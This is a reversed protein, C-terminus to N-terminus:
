NKTEWKMGQKLKFINNFLGTNDLKEDYFLEVIEIYKAIDISFYDKLFMGYYFLPETVCLIKDYENITFYKISFDIFKEFNLENYSFNNKIFNFKDKNAEFRLFYIYDNEEVIAFALISKFYFKEKEINYLETNNDLTYESLWQGMWAIDACFLLLYLDGREINIKYKEIKNKIESFYKIYEKELKNKIMFNILNEVSCLILDEKKNDHIMYYNVYENCCQKLKSLNYDTIIKEKM